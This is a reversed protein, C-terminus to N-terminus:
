SRVANITRSRVAANGQRQVSIELQATSAAAATAAVSYRLLRQTTGSGGLNAATIVFSDQTGEDLNIAWGTGIPNRTVNYTGAVTLDAAIVLDRSGGGPVTLTNGLLAGASFLPVPTLTITNDPPPTATGVVFQRSGSSGFIPGSSVDVTLGFSVGNTGPPVTGIRIQFDAQQGPDLTIQRPVLEVGNADRVSLQSNWLALNTAVSVQPNIDWSARNNTGSTIRYVFTAASAPVVTAPNVSQWEVLVNGQLPNQLPRLVITRSTSESQNHVVLEVNTGSETVGPVSPIVLELHSDSSNSSFGAAPTGNFFVRAAGISFQFHNGLIHLSDGVRYPGAPLLQTIALGTAVPGSALLADHENLLAIVRNLLESSIVDGPRVRDTIAAM